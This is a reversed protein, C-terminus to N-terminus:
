TGEWQDGGRSGESPESVEGLLRRAQRRTEAQQDRANIPQSFARRVIEDAEDEDTVARSKPQGTPLCAAIVLGLPGLLLGFMFGETPDRHKQQSVYCGIGGCILAFIGVVILWLEM